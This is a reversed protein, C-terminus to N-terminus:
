KAGVWAAGYDNKPNRYISHAHDTISEGEDDQPSYELVMSPSTVRFYAFGLKNQVGWWGFYTEDLEALITSLKAEYHNHNMFGLRTQILALLLQKQAESLASGKIGEPAVVTGYEGPGLLLDIPKDSRIALKKQTETLSSLLNQAAQTEDKTIFIEKGQYKINLPQGGTLMPSFSADKGYITVNFALHHGGFQFMWPQTESPKGLMAVYFFETGYKLMASREFTDEAHLQYAINQMGQESMIEALLEDLLSRQKVSLKGLKLGGRPIMGEPFNSWNSRQNNDSFSYLVAQKQEEDLSSLFHNAKTVIAQTKPSTQKDPFVKKIPIEVPKTNVGFFLGTMDRATCGSMFLTMASLVFLFKKITITRM